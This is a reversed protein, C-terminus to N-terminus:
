KKARELYEGTRTDVKIENGEEIFLPVSITAGTELKVPKTGGSATDGKIGPPAEIVKLIVHPSLAVSIPNDGDFMIQVNVGEKMYNVQEGVVDDPIPIQNYDEYNMFVYGSDDHYLYQYDKAELRVIEIQEGSRFKNEIMKGSKLSKMKVQYFGRKNGPTRHENRVVIHPENNFKIILGNRLDSTTGM